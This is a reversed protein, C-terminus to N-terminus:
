LWLSPACVAVADGRDHLGAGQTPPVRGAEGPGTAPLAQSVPANGHRQGAEGPEETGGTGEELSGPCQKQAWLPRTKVLSTESPSVEM